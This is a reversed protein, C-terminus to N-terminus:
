RQEEPLGLRQKLEGLSVLIMPETKWDHTDLLMSLILDRAQWTKAGATYTSRGTIKILTERAFTDVPKRRGGDQIALLGWQKFDLSSSDSNPLDSQACATARFLVSAAAILIFIRTRLHRSHLERRSNHRALCWVQREVNM